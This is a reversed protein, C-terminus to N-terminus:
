HLIISDGVSVTGEDIAVLNQGFFVKNGEKRYRSLTRLPEVGRKATVQDVTTLICRDSRKVGVFRVAGISFNTWTDEAFPAAGTFVFNPRFRNMPVAESLKQNLDNLSSQGIILFPYADALSVNEDNVSYGRDVKRPNKEAFSVLKCSTNLLRSFWKSLDPNVETVQVSDAWVQATISEAKPSQALNLSAEDLVSGNRTYAIRITNGEFSLKFLAMDHYTRQTMAVKKEDILMWRRDYRLGKQYVAAHSVSVGGLSKIPYIFLESIQLM